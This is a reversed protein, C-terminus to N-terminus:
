RRTAVKIAAVYTIAASPHTMIVSRIEATEPVFTVFRLDDKLPCM